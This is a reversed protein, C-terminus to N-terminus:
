RCCDNRGDPDILVARKQLGLFGCRRALAFERSRIKKFRLGFHEPMRRMSLRRVM